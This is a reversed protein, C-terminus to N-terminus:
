LFNKINGCADTAPPTPNSGVVVPKPPRRGIRVLSGAGLKTENSFDCVKLNQDLKSQDFQDIEQGLLSHVYSPDQRHYKFVPKGNMYGIYHKVRYYNKGIHQLYGQVGCIQCEIKLTQM